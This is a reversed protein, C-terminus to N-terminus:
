PDDSEAVELDEDSSDSPDDSEAAGQGADDQHGQREKTMQDVCHRVRDDWPVVDREPRVECRHRLNGRVDQRM